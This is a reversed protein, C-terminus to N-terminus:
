EATHHMVSQACVGIFFQYHKGLAAGKIGLGPVATLYYNCFGKVLCGVLLNVVPLWTNGFGTSCRCYDAATRHVTGCSGALCDGSWSGPDDFLLDMIPTALMM